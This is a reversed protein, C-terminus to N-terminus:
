VMSSTSAGKSLSSQAQMSQLGDYRVGNWMAPSTPSSSCRSRIWTCFISVFLYQPLWFGCEECQGGGSRYGWRGHQHEHNVRLDEVAAQVRELMVAQPVAERRPDIGAEVQRRAAVVLRNEDWQPCQCTKWTKACVYCFQARCRCTMHFCGHALEVMQHCQPCRQWGEERALDLVVQAETDTACPQFFPHAATNCAGCTRTYCEPCYLPTPTSTAAGVFAGCSRSSCYIKKGVTNYEREKKEFLLALQSSLHPRILSFPIPQTCCRIPFLSQDRTAAEVLDTICEVDYPHGCPGAISPGTIKDRCSTCEKAPKPKSSPAATYTSGHPAKPTARGSNTVLTSLISTATTSAPTSSAAPKSTSPRAASASSAAPRVPIGQSLALAVRRDDRAQNEEAQCAQVLAHDTALASDISQALVRDEVARSM